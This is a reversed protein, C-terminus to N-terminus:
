KDKITLDGATAGIGNKNLQDQCTAVLAPGTTSYQSIAGEACSEWNNRRAQAICYSNKDFLTHDNAETLRCSQFAKSYGVNCQQIASNLFSNQSLEGKVSNQLCQQYVEHAQDNTAAVSKLTDADGPLKVSSLLASNKLILIAFILFVLWGVTSGFIRYAIFYFVAGVILYEILTDVFSHM